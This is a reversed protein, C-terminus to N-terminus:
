KKKGGRGRGKAKGKAGGVKKKFTGMQRKMAAEKKAAAERAEAEV